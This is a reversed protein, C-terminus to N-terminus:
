SCMSGVLSIIAGTQPHERVDDLSIRAAISRARASAREFQTIVEIMTEDGGVEFGGHTWLPGDFNEDTLRGATRQFWLREAFTAHKILSIPTTLSPVLRIRADADADSLNRVTDVLDVRAQDLVTELLERETGHTHISTNM